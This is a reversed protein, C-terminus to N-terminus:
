IFYEPFQDIIQQIKPQNRKRHHNSFPCTIYMPTVENATTM